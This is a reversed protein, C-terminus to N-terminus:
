KQFTVTLLVTRPDNFNATRYAPLRAAGSNGDIAYGPNYAYQKDFLNRASLAVSWRKDETTYSLRANVLTQEPLTSTIANNGNSYSKSQYNVDANFVLASSIGLPLNWTVAARGKWEPAYALVAGVFPNSNIAAGAPFSANAPIIMPINAGGIYKDLRTKLWTGSVDFVLGEAPVFQGEFEIGRSSANGANFRRTIPSSGNPPNSDTTTIQVDDFTLYFATVNATIRGELWKTKLGVEYNTVKEPDIPLLAQRAGAATPTQARFEYGASKTGRSFTGYAIVDPTIKYDISFRPQWTTWSKSPKVTWILTTPNSFLVSYFNDANATTASLNYLQNDNQHWEYNLRLGATLTLAPAPQFKGEGYPRLVAFVDDTSIGALPLDGLGAAHTELTSRWQKRHKENRFGAELGDVFEGAFKGFTRTM